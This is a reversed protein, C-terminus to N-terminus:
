PPRQQLLRQQDLLLVRSLIQKLNLLSLEKEALALQFPIVTGQDALQLLADQRAEVM